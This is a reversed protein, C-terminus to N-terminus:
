SVRVRVRVRVRAAREPQSGDIAFGYDLLLRANGEDCYSFRVEEGAQLASPACLVVM